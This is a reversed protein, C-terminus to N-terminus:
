SLLSAQVAWTCGSPGRGRGVMGHQALEHVTGLVLRERLWADLAATTPQCPVGYRAPDRQLRVYLYTGRM